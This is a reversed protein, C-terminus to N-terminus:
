LGLTEDFKTSIEIVNVTSEARRLRLAIGDQVAQVATEVPAPKAIVDDFVGQDGDDLARVFDAADTLCILHPWQKIPLLRRVLQAIVQGDIKATFYDMIVVDTGRNTLLRMAQLGDSSIEVECGAIELASKLATQSPDDDGVLLVRPVTATQWDAAEAPATALTGGPAMARTRKITRLLADPKWPKEVIADFVPEMTAECAVVRDPTLTLAIMLPVSGGSRGADKILIASTHGDIEAIRYDMLVINFWGTRCLLVADSGSETSDVVFGHATLFAALVERQVEDDEVVLVRNRQPSTNPLANMM